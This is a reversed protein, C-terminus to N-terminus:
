LGLRIVPKLRRGSKTFGPTTSVVKNIKNLIIKKTKKRSLRPDRCFASTDNDGIEKFVDEQFQRPLTPSLNLVNLFEVQGLGGFVIRTNKLCKGRTM